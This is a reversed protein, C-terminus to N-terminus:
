EESGELTFKLCDLKESKNVRPPLRLVFLAFM